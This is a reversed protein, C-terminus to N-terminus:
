EEIRKAAGKIYGVILLVIGSILVGIAIYFLIDVTTKYGSNLGTDLGVMGAFRDVGKALGDLKYKDSDRAILTGILGGGGLITLIWGFIKM